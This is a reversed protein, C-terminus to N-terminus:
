VTEGKAKQFRRDLEKVTKEVDAKMDKWQEDVATKLDALKRKAAELTPQLKTLENELKTKAEGTSRYAKEKLEKMGVNIEDMKKQVKNVFEDREQKTTEDSALAVQQVQIGLAESGAKLRSTEKMNAVALTTLTVSLFIALALILYKM